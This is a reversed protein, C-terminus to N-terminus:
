ILLHTQKFSEEIDVTEESPLLETDNDNPNDIYILMNKYKKKNMYIYGFYFAGISYYIIM